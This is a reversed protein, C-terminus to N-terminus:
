PIPQARRTVTALVAPEHGPNHLARLPLGTLWLVDGREFRRLSGSRSELVIEGREVVVLADRWESEDFPRTHGPAVDVARLEFAASLAKGLFSLTEDRGHATADRDGSGM